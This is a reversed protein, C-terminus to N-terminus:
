VFREKPQMEELKNLIESKLTGNEVGPHIVKPPIALVIMEYIPQAVDIQHSGYPLILIEDNDNNYENGFKVVWDFNTNIPFDFRENTVDCAVEVHGIAKFGLNLFTSKKNLALEIKIKASFFDNFDYEEFFTNEIDFQFQHMGERLGAFPVIFKSAREM